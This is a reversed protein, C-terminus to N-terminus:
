PIISKHIKRGATVLKSAYKLSGPAGKSAGDTVKVINKHKNTPLKIPPKAKTNIEASNVDPSIRFLSIIPCLLLSINAEHTITYEKSISIAMMTNKPTNRSDPMIIPYSIDTHSKPSMNIFMSTIVTINKPLERASEM